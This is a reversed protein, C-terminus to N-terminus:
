TKAIRQRVVALHRQMAVLDLDYTRAEPVSATILEALHDPSVLSREVLFVIDAIDSDFGRDLKSLAMMYPDIVYVDVAGFRGIFARRSASDPPVPVFHQIPVPDVVLQLEDAVQAITRQFDTPQLDDGVYDIDVTTRLNGLLLLASGGLLVLEAPESQRGGLAVLFSNITAGDVLSM